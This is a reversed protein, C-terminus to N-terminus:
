IYGVLRVGAESWGGVVGSWGGDAGDGGGAEMREMEAELM